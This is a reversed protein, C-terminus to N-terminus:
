PTIGAIAAVIQERRADFKTIEGAAEVIAVTKGQPFFAILYTWDETGVPSSLEISAGQVGGAVVDSEAVLHYGAAVMRERVAQKWFKLEAVRQHKMRRVRFLVEDASAARYRRHSRWASFGDPPKPVTIGGSKHDPRRERLAWIVDVVNLTNLWPFSSTGDRSPAARDRFQFSVDLRANAAQDELVRVRGKLSELESIASVIQMEVAVVSDPGATRLVKYYEDLVEERAEVRGRLDALDQTADVRELSSDIVKGQAAVFAALADYQSSPVRLSLAGPTRAQFWGGSARVQDVIAQAVIDQQTVALVM